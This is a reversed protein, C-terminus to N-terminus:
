RLGMADIAPLDRVEQPAADADRVRHADAAADAVAQGTGEEHRVTRAECPRISRRRPDSRDGERGFWAADEAV